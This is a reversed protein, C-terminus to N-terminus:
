AALFSRLPKLNSKCCAFAQASCIEIGGKGITPVRGWQDLKIHRVRMRLKAFPDDSSKIQGLNTIEQKVTEQDCFPPRPAEDGKTTKIKKEVSKDKRLEKTM